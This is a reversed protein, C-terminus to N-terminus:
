RSGVALAAGGGPLSIREGTDVVGTAEIRFVQVNREVM